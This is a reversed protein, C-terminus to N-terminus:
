LEEAMRAILDRSDGGPLAELQLSKFRLAVDAVALPDDTVQGDAIDEKYLISGDNRRDAIVFAGLLVVREGVSTVQTLKDMLESEEAGLPFRKYIADDILALGPYLALGGFLSLLSAIPSVARLGLVDRISAHPSYVRLMAFLALSYAVVKCSTINVLDTSAGPRASETMEVLVAAVLGVGISWAAAALFTMPRSSRSEGTHEDESM